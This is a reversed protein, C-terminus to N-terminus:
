RTHEAGEVLARVEEELMPMISIPNNPPLKLRTDPRSKLGLDEEAWRFFRRIAKWHNQLTSGSLPTVDGGQRRPVYDSRLYAFYKTLDNPVIETVDRDQLFGALTILMIRYLDVTAPSYGDAKLTFLFGDLARTMNM